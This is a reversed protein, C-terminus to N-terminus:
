LLDGVVDGSVIEERLVPYKNGAIELGSIFCVIHFSFTQEGLTTILETLPVPISAVWRLFGHPTNATSTCLIM